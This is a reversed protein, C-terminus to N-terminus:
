LIGLGHGRYEGVVKGGLSGGGGGVDMYGEAGGSLSTAIWRLDHFPDMVRATKRGDWQMVADAGVWVLHGM